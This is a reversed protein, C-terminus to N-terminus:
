KISALTIRRGPLARSPEQTDAWRANPRLPAIQWFRQKLLVSRSQAPKLPTGRREARGSGTEGRDSRRHRLGGHLPRLSASPLRHLRRSRRQNRLLRALSTATRLEWSLAGQNHALALSQQLLAGADDGHGLSARIEAKIRLLEPECWREKRREADALAEQIIDDAQGLEGRALLGSALVGLYWGYLFQFSARSM